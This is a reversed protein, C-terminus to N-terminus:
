RYITYPQYLWQVVPESVIRQTKHFLCRQEVIYSNYWVYPVARYVIIPQPLVVYTPIVPQSITTTQTQIITNNQGQYPIWNDAFALNNVFFICFLLIYKYM